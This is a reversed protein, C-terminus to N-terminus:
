RPYVAFHTAFKKLCCAQRNRPPRTDGVLASRPGRYVVRYQTGSNSLANKITELHEVPVNKMISRQNTKTYLVTM